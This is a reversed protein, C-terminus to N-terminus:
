PRTVTPENMFVIGIAELAAKVEADAAAPVRETYVTGKTVVSCPMDGSTVDVDEYVIGIYTSGDKYISAGPLIKNGNDLTIVQADTTKATYTKRTCRENDALFWGPQFVRSNTNDIIFSM